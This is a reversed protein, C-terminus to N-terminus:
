TVCVSEVASNSMASRSDYSCRAHSSPSGVQHGNFRALVVTKTVVGMFFFNALKRKSGDGFIYELAEHMTAKVELPSLSTLFLINNGFVHLTCLSFSVSM